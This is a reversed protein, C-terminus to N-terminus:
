DRTKGRNQITQGERAVIGGDGGVAQGRFESEAGRDRTGASVPFTPSWAAFYLRSALRGMDRRRCGMRSGGSVHMRGARVGNKTGGVSLCPTAPKVNEGRESTPVKELLAAPKCEGDTCSVCSRVLEDADVYSCRRM